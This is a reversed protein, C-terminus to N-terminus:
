NKANKTDRLAFYKRVQERDDFHHKVGAVDQYPEHGKGAVLIIDGASALTVATRIAEDRATISIYNDGEHLGARMQAIIDDPNELRPNDSTLILLTARDAAIRAMEPRKTTDRNGGCGVVVYLKQSEKRIANITDLVNQLADPTHAYDVIATVGDTSRITEFRGDVSTLESLTRLADIKPVGLERAAAYIGLLNYANFGGVLRSWFEEGDMILQMGEFGMEVVKCRYEADTKLSIRRVRAKTNQVMVMGNRDDVNVVAFAESPLADFLGKKAKVYEAFTKHYDLHDHTINTFIAGDFRLGEIRHQVISHSSVEMFCYECGAEVMEAFMENLRISDPTTHTSPMERDDVIYRVTSILGSKHGLRRMMNYLLTATTTKGNTGTVGVLTLRATPDGYFRAAVRGITVNTDPTVIYTVGEALTEPLEECVVAVAGREVASGIFRHGDVATGRVAFFMSGSQVERSDFTIHGVRRDTDGVIKTVDSGEILEAITKPTNM